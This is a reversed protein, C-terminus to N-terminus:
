CVTRADGCGSTTKSGNELLEEKDALTRFPTIRTKPRSLLKLGGRRIMCLALLALMRMAISSLPSASPAPSLHNTGSGANTGGATLSKSSVEPSTSSSSYPSTMSPESPALLVKNSSSWASPCRLADDDVDEFEENDGVTDGSEAFAEVPWSKGTNITRRGRVDEVLLQQSHEIGLRRFANDVM